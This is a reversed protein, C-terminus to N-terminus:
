QLPALRRLWLVAAIVIGFGVWHQVDATSRLAYHAVALVGVAYVVRHLLKWRRAGLKKVATATSTAALLGMGFLALAGPWLWGHEQFSKLVATVSGQDAVLWVAVHLGSLLAASLGIRRRWRAPWTARLHVRIPTCALAAALWLLAWFGLFNAAWLGPSALPREGVQQPGSWVAQGIHAGTALWATGFGLWERQNSSLGQHSQSENLHARWNGRRFRCLLSFGLAGYPLSGAPQECLRDRVEGRPSM